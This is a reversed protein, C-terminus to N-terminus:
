FWNKIQELLTPKYNTKPNTTVPQKFDTFKKKLQEIEYVKKGNDTRYQILLTNVENLDKQLDSIQNKLSINESLLNSNATSLKYRREMSDQNSKLLKQHLKKFETNEKELEAKTLKM